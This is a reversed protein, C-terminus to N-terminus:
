RNHPVVFGREKEIVRRPGLPLYDFRECTRFEFVRDYEEQVAIIMGNVSVGTSWDYRGQPKVFVGHQALENCTWPILLPHTHIYCLEDPCDAKITITQHRFRPAFCIGHKALAYVIAYCDNDGSYDYMEQIDKDSLYKRFEEILEERFESIIKNAKNRCDALYDDYKLKELVEKARDIDMAKEQFESKKQSVLAVHRDTEKRSRKESSCVTVIVIAGFLAILLGM